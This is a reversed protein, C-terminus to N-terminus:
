PTGTPTQPSPQAHRKAASQAGCSVLGHTHVAPSPVSVDSSSAKAQSCVRSASIHHPAHSRHWLLIIPWLRTPDILPLTCQTRMPVSCSHRTRQVLGRSNATCTQAGDDCAQRMRPTSPCSSDHHDQLHSLIQANCAGASSSRTWHTGSRAPVPSWWKTSHRMCVVVM